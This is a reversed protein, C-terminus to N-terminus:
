RSCFKNGLLLRVVLYLCGGSYEVSVWRGVAAAAAAAAVAAAAVVDLRHMSGLGPPVKGEDPAFSPEEVRCDGERFVEEPVIQHFPRGDLSWQEDMLPTAMRAKEAASAAFDGEHSAEVLVGIGVGAAAHVDALSRLVVSLM